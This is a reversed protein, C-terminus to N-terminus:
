KDIKIKAMVEDFHKKCLGSSLASKIGKKCDYIDGCVGCQSLLLPFETEVELRRLLMLITYNHENKPTWEM